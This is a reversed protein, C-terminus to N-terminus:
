AHRGAVGTVTPCAFVLHHRQKSCRMPGSNDNPDTETAASLVGTRRRESQQAGASLPWAAAGGLLTIFERRNTQGSM